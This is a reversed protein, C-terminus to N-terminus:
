RPTATGSEAHCGVCGIGRVEYKDGNLFQKAQEYHGSAAGIAIIKEFYQHAKESNGYRAYGDALGFLLESRMHLDLRDFYSKQLDYVHEYDALAKELLVKGRERPVQRSVGFWAAARPILVAPNDPELEGAKTMEAIARGWLEGGAVFDGAQFKQGSLALLGSGHWAMAEAAEPDAAIVEESNRMARNLAEKDGAFGAFFDGRVRSDFREALAVPSLAAIALTLTLLQQRKM